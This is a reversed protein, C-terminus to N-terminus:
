EIVINGSGMINKVPPTKVHRVYIDSSGMLALTATEAVGGFRFDGSGMISVSLATVNGAEVRINGSGMIAGTLPGNVKSIQVSGSSKVNVTAAHMSGSRIAASSNSDVTLEGDIDAITADGNLNDLHIKAGRGIKIAIKVQDTEAAVNVIGDFNSSGIVINGDGSVVVNTDNGVVVTSNGTAIIDGANVRTITTNGNYVTTKSFRVTKKAQEIVLTGDVTQATVADLVAKPGTLTVEAGEKNWVGITVKASLSKLHLNGAPFLLPGRVTQKDTNRQGCATGTPAFATILMVLFVTSRSVIAIKRM